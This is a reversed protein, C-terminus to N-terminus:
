IQMAHGFQRAPKAVTLMIMTHNVNFTIAKQDSLVTFGEDDTIIIVINNM